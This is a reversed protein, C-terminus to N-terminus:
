PGKRRSRCSPTENVSRAYFFDIELVKFKVAGAAIISEVERTDQETTNFVEIRRTSFAPSPSSITMPVSRLIIRM